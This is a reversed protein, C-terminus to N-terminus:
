GGYHHVREALITAEPVRGYKCPRELNDFYVMQQHKLMASDEALPAIPPQQTLTSSMFAENAYNLVSFHRSIQIVPTTAVTVVDDFVIM